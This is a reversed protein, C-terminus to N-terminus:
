LKQLEERLKEIEKKILAEALDPIVEWAVERIVKDSIQGVAARIKATLPAYQDDILLVGDDGSSVGINGGRGKLMWVGDGVAVTEVVVDDFDQATVPGVFAAGVTVLLLLVRQWTM